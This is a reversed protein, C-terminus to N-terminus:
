VALTNFKINQLTTVLYSTVMTAVHTTVQQCSTATYTVMPACVLHSNVNLMVQLPDCKAERICSCLWLTCKLAYILTDFTIFSKLAQNHAQPSFLQIRQM